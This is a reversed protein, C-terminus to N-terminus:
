GREGCGARELMMEVFRGFSIGAAEAAKPVLSTETMGPMMNIELLWFGGEEDMMVDLRTVGRGGVVGHAREALRVLRQHEVPSLAAPLRYATGAAREYKAEYDYFQRQPLIEIVGMVQGDMMAVTLERGEILAEVLLPGQCALAGEIAGRLAEEERVLTVGV